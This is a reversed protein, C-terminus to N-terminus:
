FNESLCLNFYKKGPVHTDSESDWDSASKVTTEFGKMWDALINKSMEKIPVKAKTESCNSIYFAFNRPILCFILIKKPPTM